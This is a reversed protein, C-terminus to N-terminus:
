GYILNKYIQSKTESTEIKTEKTQKNKYWNTTLKVLKDPLAVQKCKEEEVNKHCFKVRREEMYM